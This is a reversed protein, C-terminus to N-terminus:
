DGNQTEKRIVYISANPHDAVFAALNDIPEDLGRAAGDETAILVFFRQTPAARRELSEVRRRLSM